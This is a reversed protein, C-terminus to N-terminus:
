VFFRSSHVTVGVPMNRTVFRSANSGVTRAPSAMVSIGSNTAVSYKRSFCSSGTKFSQRRGSPPRYKTVGVARARGAFILANASKKVELSAAASHLAPATMSGFGERRFLPDWLVLYTQTAYEVDVFTRWPSRAYIVEGGFAAALVRVGSLIRGDFAM